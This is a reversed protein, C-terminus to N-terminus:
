DDCKRRWCRCGDCITKTAHFTCLDSITGLRAMERKLEAIERDKDDFIRHRDKLENEMSKKIGAIEQDKEMNMTTVKSVDEHLAVIEADKAEVIDARIYKQEQGNEFLRTGAASRHWYTPRDQQDRLGANIEDPWKTEPIM